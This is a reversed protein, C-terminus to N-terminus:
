KKFRRVNHALRDRILKDVDQEILPRVNPNDVMQPVSLTKIAKLPMAKKGKRIFPIYQTKSEDVAGTHVLFAKTHIVKKQGKIVTAKLTRRRKKMASREAGKLRRHKRAGPGKEPLGKPEPPAKPTLGFHTHTLRRGRYVLAVDSLKEGKVRITGAKKGKGSGTPMVESKKINYRTRVDDAIRGPLRKKMDSTTAKMAKGLGVNDRELKKLVGEYIFSASISTKKAM